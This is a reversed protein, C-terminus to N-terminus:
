NKFHLLATAFADIDAENNYFHPSVRLAGKRWTVYIEKETLYNGVEQSAKICCINSLHKADNGGILEFRSNQLANGLRKVLEHNHKQVNEVGQQLRNELSKSLQLLGLPNLHGPEFSKASPVYSWDNGQMTLSGLGAFTPTFKEIFAPKVLLVGSGLGGNLWKYSSAILVDCSLESFDFEFAGISQTVDLIFVIGKERCYESLQKFDFTFGTLFQVHSLAVVEIKGHEIIKQIAEFTFAFDDPSEVYSIDFGGLEFPMNLSPYDTKFLLVRKVKTKLCNIVSIIGFSFNSVFAVNEPQTHVLEAMRNRLEVLDKEMWRMFAKSPNTLTEHQFDQAAKVSEESVLGVSATNLYIM